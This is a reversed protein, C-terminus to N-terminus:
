DVILPSVRKLEPFFSTLGSEVFHLVLEVQHM